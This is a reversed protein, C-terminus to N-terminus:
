DIHFFFLLLPTPMLFLVSSAKKCKSAAFISVLFKLVSDGLFELKQYNEQERAVPTSIATRILEPDLIEVESLITGCLEAVVLQVQVKHLLSPILLGFQSIAIPVPDTELRTQPLVKFYEKERWVTTSGQVPHLFDSRTSWKKLAVFRQDPSFTEYDKHPKQISLSPPKTPLWKQFVFPYGRKQVDRLLGAPENLCDQFTSPLHGQLQSSINMDQAKFLVVHKLQETQWRHGYSNSLLAGTDDQTLESHQITTPLGIEIRWERSADWYIPISRMNPLRVPMLMEIQCKTLGAEDKLTLVRQELREKNEWARAVGPWPNFQEQVDIISDNKEMYKSPEPFNLPLLQDSVLGAHYLAIYAEFAADKTAIKESSWLQRSKHIRLIPDLTVPLIVTARLLPPQDHQNEMSEERIIYEPRTQVRSHSSLRSCFCDLHGKASDMDLLAGTSPVRFLRRQCHETEVAENKELKRAARDEIEYLLKMEHELRKWEALRSRAASELFMVLKSERLRARGRRQVFSKLNAPEDFCIVLNCQPVDIGEELVSTAVLLSIEGLRFKALTKSQSEHHSFDFIDRNGAPRMSTGVTVGLSFRNCTDPYESLLRHLMHATAREKVFIIGITSEHCSELFQILARAKGSISGKEPLVPTNPSFLELSRLANSLYQREADQWELFKNDKSDTCRIFSSTVESIYANAAWTGLGLEIEGATRIFSRMQNQIFTKKGMIARELKRRSADTNTTRLRIVEPDDDINLNLYVSRLSRMNGSNHPNMTIPQNGNFVIQIMIPLKVHLSLDLKQKRPSKCTADLTSELIELGDLNSGMVPSATLGLIHPVYKKSTKEPWYHDQM